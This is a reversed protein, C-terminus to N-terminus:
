GKVQRCASAGSSMPLEHLAVATSRSHTTSLLKTNLLNLRKRSCNLETEDRLITESYLRPTYDFGAAMVKVMVVM